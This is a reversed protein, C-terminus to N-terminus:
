IYMQSDRKMKSLTYWLLFQGTATQGHETLVQLM